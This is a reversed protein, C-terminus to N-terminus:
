LYGILKQDWGRNEDMRRIILKNNNFRYCFVDKYKSIFVLKTSSSYKENLELVKINTNSSGINIVNDLKYPYFSNNEMLIVNKKYYACYKNKEIWTDEDNRDIKIEPVLEDILLLMNYENDEIKVKYVQENLDILTHKNIVNYLYKCNFYYDDNFNNGIRILYDIMEKFIPNKPPTMLFGNFIDKEGRNNTVFMMDFDSIIFEINDLLVSDADMYMGGTDYLICYRWLDTKHAIKDYSKFLKVYKSGWSKSLYEVMDRMSYLRYEIDSPLNNKNKNEIISPLKGDWTQYFIKPIGTM